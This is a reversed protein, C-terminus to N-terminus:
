FMCIVEFFYRSYRREKLCILLVPIIGKPNLSSISACESAIEDSKSDSLLLNMREAMQASLPPPNSPDQDNSLQSAVFKDLVRWDTVHLDQESNKVYLMNVNLQHNSPVQRLEQGKIVIGIPKSSSYPVEVRMRVISFPSMASEYTGVINTLPAVKKPRYNGDNPTLSLEPM